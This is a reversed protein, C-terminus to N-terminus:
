RLGSRNAISRSRAALEGDNDAYLRIASALAASIGEFEAVGTAIYDSLTRLGTEFASRVDPAGLLHGFMDQDAHRPVHDHLNTLGDAWKRWTSVDRELSELDVQYDSM